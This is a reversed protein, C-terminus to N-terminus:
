DVNIENVKSGCAHCRGSIEGVDTSGCTPCTIVNYSGPGSELDRSEESGPGSKEIGPGSTDLDRNLSPIQVNAPTEQFTGAFLPTIEGQLDGSGLQTDPERARQELSSHPTPPQESVKPGEDLKFPAANTLSVM